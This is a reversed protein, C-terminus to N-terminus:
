EHSPRETRSNLSLQKMPSALVADMGSAVQQVTLTDDADIVVPVKPLNIQKLLATLQEYSNNQIATDGVRLVVSGDNGPSMRVLISAPMDEAAAGTSESVDRYGLPLDREGGHFRVSLVFFALLIFVVDVMASIQFLEDSEEEAHRDFKM